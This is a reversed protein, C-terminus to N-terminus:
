NIKFSNQPLKFTYPIKTVQNLFNMLPRSWLTLSVFSLKQDLEAFPQSFDQKEFAKLAAFLSESFYMGTKIFEHFYCYGMVYGLRVFLYQEEAALYYKDVSLTLLPNTDVKRAMQTSPM